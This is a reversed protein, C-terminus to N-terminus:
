ANVKNKKLYIAMGTLGILAIVGTAAYTMIPDSTEPNEIAPEEPDVTPETPEKVEEVYKAYIALDDTIVATDDFPTNYNPDTYWGGFEYGEIEVYYDNLGQLISNTPISVVSQAGAVNITIYVYGTITPYTIGNVTSIKTNEFAIVNNANTATSINYVASANGAPATNNLESNTVIIQNEESVSYSSSILILDEKPTAGAYNTIVSDDIDLILDKQGGIVVTGYSDSSGNYANYGTLTSGKVTVVNGTAQNPKQSTGNSIDLAAYGTLTSGTVNLKSNSAQFWIAYKAAVESNTVNLVTGDAGLEVWIGDVSNTAYTGNYGKYVVKANNVNVTSKTKVDILTAADQVTLTDLTVEIDAQNIIVTGDIITGEKSAGKLTINKDITLDGTYTGDAINLVDGAEAETIKASLDDGNAVAIEKASATTMFLLGSLTVTIAMAFMKLGKKM